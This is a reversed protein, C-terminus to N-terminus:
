DDDDKKANPDVKLGLKALGKGHAGSWAKPYPEGPRMALWLIENLDDDEILDPKSFDMEAMLKAERAGMAAKKKNPEDIPIVNPLHKFPTLDPKEAFCDEMTPSQAVQQNLPPLGFIRTITHLVSSQNYFRSVVAGRKTYPSVVLCLSRHGDVHDFGNQPDDENVFIVTDKWFRSHSIADVVRGLALDNDAVHARPTPVGEKTGQTHDQPLYLVVLNPFSGDKEFKELEKIFVEARRIDPIQMQWGPYEACTFRKLAEVEVSQKYSFDPTGWAKQVAYWNKAKGTLDPFDFEGYNRFSLGKLLVADWIFDCNAYTLADTGFDYSRNGSTRDKEQYDTVMGQTAWQHGDASMVGNCYYNDLLAFQEALAHHNPTVDRGFICLKPEGNGKGMAGFVQDYTRNEKIVYVVHKFVSPEGPKTPVPKPAVGAAAQETARLAEPVRADTLVQKTMAPLEADSPVAVVQVSGRIQHSNWEGPRKPDPTRSGVGKTNAVVLSTGDTLVGGPFFGAPVFGLVKQAPVDVIAVANNGGLAVFMRKGDASLALANPLSGFPLGADPRVDIQAIAKGAATDVVDVRDSNAAAVYLRAGDPSLKAQAPHLGVAVQAVPKRAALDIRTVTGTSAITRKDVVMDTGVTKATADGAAARRGGFNTVWATAGDASLVVSYSCVGTPIEEVLKGAALDVVALTNNISVCVFATKGDASVAIGLPHTSGNKPGPLDVTRGWALKNGVGATAELVAKRSTSVLLRDGAPTAVVAIGHMSGAHGTPYALQQLITATAVDIVTVGGTNKVYARKGDPSLCLDVPRGGYEVTRGAPRALQGTPGVSGADAPGVTRDPSTAPQTAAPPAAVALTIAVPLSVALLALVIPRRFNTM